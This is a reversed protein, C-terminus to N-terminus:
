FDVSDGSVEGTNEPALEPKEVPKTSKEAKKAAFEEAKKKDEAYIASYVKNLCFVLYEAFSEAMDTKMGVKREETDKKITLGFGTNTIPKGDKTGEISYFTFNGTTVKNDFSHYFGYKSNNRVARLLGGVEAVSLKVNIGNKWDFNNKQDKDNNAVQKFVKLYVAADKSNASVFLAGGTLKANAAFVTFPM